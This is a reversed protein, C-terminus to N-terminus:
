INRQQWFKCPLISVYFKSTTAFLMQAIDLKEFGFKILAPM